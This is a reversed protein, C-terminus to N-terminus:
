IKHNNLLAAKVTSFGGRLFHYVDCALRGLSVSHCKVHTACSEVFRSFKGGTRPGAGEIPTSHALRLVFVEGTKGYQIRCLQRLLGDCHGQRKINAQSRASGM